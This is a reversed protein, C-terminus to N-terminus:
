IQVSEVPKPNLNVDLQDFPITIANEDFAYKIQEMLDWKLQWYNETAVWVRIGMTIASADFSSVFIVKDEEPLIAEQRDVVRQLVAKVKRIDESYDIGVTLDLRRKPENTVNVLDSNSLTGNPIVVLRNDGTLLRTYFIDMGTVTGENGCAIIYDGVRFPKLILLLVGGALNALSGQLALGAALGASGILAVLSSTNFGLYSAAAVVLVVQLVIKLLNKLFVAVSLELHAKEFIRECIRVLWKILQWGIVLILVAVVLKRAFVFLSAAAAELMMSMKSGMDM